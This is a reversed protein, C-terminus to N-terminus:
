RTTLKLLYNRLNDDVMYKKNNIEIVGIGACFDYKKSDKEISGFVRADVDLNVEALKLQSFNSVLSKQEEITLKLNKLHNSSKLSDCNISRVPSIYMSIYHLEGEQKKCNLFTFIIVILLVLKILTKM